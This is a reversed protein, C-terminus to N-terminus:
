CQEQLFQISYNIMPVNGFPLLVKPISYTIPRFSDSFNNSTADIRDYEDDDDDDGSDFEDDGNMAAIAATTDWDDILLVGQLPYEDKEEKSSTTNGFNDNKDSTVAM